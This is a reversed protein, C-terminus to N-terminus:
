GPPASGRGGRWHQQDSGHRPRGRHQHGDDAPDHDRRALPREARLRTSTPRFNESPLTHSGVPSCKIIQFSESIQPLIVQWGVAVAPITVLQACLYFWGNNWAWARPAVRKSWQYVSGAIPYHTALEAFQLAVMMQGAFVFPWAWIFAPGAFLFGVYSTQFM